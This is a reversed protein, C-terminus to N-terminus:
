LRTKRWHAPRQSTVSEVPVGSLSIADQFTDPGLVAPIHNEDPLRCCGEEQFTSLLWTEKRHDPQRTPRQRFSLFQFDVKATGLFKAKREDHLRNEDLQGELRGVGLVDQEQWALPRDPPIYDAQRSSLPGALGPVQCPEGANASLYYRISLGSRAQVCPIVSDEVDIM